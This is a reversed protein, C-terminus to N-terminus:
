RGLMRENPQQNIVAYKECVIHTRKDYWWWRMWQFDWKPLLLFDNGILVSQEKEPREAEARWVASDVCRRM